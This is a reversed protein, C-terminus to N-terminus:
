AKHASIISAKLANVVETSVEGNKAKQDLLSLAEKESMSTKYSRQERLASYIDAVSLIQGIIDTNESMPNHHNKILNLVRENMGTSSLLEYGLVSHLDMINREEETLEGPKCLLEPPILIKGFDHFTCAEELVKKDAASIGMENAINMACATTTLIHSNSINLINEPYVVQKLGASELLESIKENNKILTKVFKPHSYAKLLQRTNYLNRAAVPPRTCRRLDTAAQPKIFLDKNNTEIGIEPNYEKVGNIRNTLININQGSEKINLINRGFIWGYKNLFMSRNLIAM